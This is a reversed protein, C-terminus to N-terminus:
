NKEDIGALSKIVIVFGTAFIIAIEKQDWAMALVIIAVTGAISALLQPKFLNSKEM